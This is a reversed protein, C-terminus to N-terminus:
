ADVVPRDIRDSSVRHGTEAEHEARLTRASERDDFVREELCEHCVVHYKGAM